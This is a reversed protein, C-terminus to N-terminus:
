RLDLKFRFRNETHLTETERSGAVVEVDPERRIGQIGKNELVTHCNPHLKLLGEGIREKEEQTRDGFKVLIVDGVMSWGSPVKDLGTIRELSDKRYKPDTQEVTEYEEIPTTVPVETFGTRGSHKSHKLVSRTDDYVGRSRALEIAEETEEKPVKLAYM